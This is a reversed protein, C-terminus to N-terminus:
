RRSSGSLTRPHLRRLVAAEARLRDGHAEDVAIKLVLEDDEGDRRVMLADATGGRGLKRVVIFGGDLNDDRKAISPDVTTASEQARTDTEALALYELFEGASAIRERVVPATSARVLDELFTGV